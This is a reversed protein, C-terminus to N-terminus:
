RVISPKPLPSPPVRTSAPPCNRQTGCEKPEGRASVQFIPEVGVEAMSICGYVSWYTLCGSREGEVGGGLWLELPNTTRGEEGRGGTMPRRELAKFTRYVPYALGFLLCAGRAVVATNKPNLLALAGLQQVMSMREGQAGPPRLAGRISSSACSWAGAPPNESKPLQSKSSHFSILVSFAKVEM